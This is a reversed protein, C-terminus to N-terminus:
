WVETGRPSHQRFASVWVHTAIGIRDAHWPDSARRSEIATRQCASTYIVDSHYLATGELQCVADASLSFFIQDNLPSPLSSCPLAFPPPPSSFDSQHSDSTGGWVTKRTEQLSKQQKEDFSKLQPYHFMGAPANVLWFLASCSQLTALKLLNVSHPARARGGVDVM